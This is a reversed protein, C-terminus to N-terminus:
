AITLGCNAGTHSHAGPEPQQTGNATRHPISDTFAADLPEAVGVPEAACQPNREAVGIAVPDCRAAARAQPGPRDQWHQAPRDAARWVTCQHEARRDRAGRRSCCCRTRSLALPLAVPRSREPRDGTNQPSRAYARREPTLIIGEAALSAWPANSYVFAEFVLLLALVITAASPSRVLMAAAGAVGAITLLTEARSSRMASLLSRGDKSKATRLFEAHKQLLGRVCALTVVWSLAFWVRLANIADRTSAHCARRMAWIARLMGTAAFALPVM